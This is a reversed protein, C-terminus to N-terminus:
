RSFDTAVTEEEIQATVPSQLDHIQRKINEIEEEIVALEQNVERIGLNDEHARERINQRIEEEIGDLGREDECYQLLIQIRRTQLVLLRANLEQYDANLREDHSSLNDGTDRATEYHEGAM